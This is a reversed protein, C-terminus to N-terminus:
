GSTLMCVKVKGDDLECLVGKLLGEGYESGPNVCLTTGIKVKGRSEHIHGHLGILPQHKEVSARVASSGADIMVMAGGSIIPKLTGDLKAAQDLGSGIPPVHLNFIANKMDKVQSCMAEIKQGLVEEDAERPSNWPTHNAYGLTIMEHRGDINVVKEEPNIVLTSSDLANDIEFIDDNGPSIYCKVGTDKLREEAMRMWREIGQVMTKNFVEKVYAPSAAMKDMEEQDCIYPYFGMNRIKAANEEAEQESKFTVESGSLATVYGGSSLRVIPVIMKGTIDGGLILVKAGYFKSANLFKKFCRDSGHVDTVFYVRTVAM